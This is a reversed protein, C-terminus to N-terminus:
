KTGYAGHPVCIYWHVTLTNRTNAMMSAFAPKCLHERLFNTFLKRKQLNARLSALHAISEERKYPESVSILIELAFEAVRIPEWFALEKRKNCHSAPLWYLRSALAAWFPSPCTKHTIYKLNYMYNYMIIYKHMGWTSTNTGWTNM